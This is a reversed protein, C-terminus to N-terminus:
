GVAVEGSWSQACGFGVPDHALNGTNPMYGASCSGAAASESSVGPRPSEPSISPAPASHGCGALTVATQVLLLALVSMRTVTSASMRMYRSICACALVSMRTVTSASM